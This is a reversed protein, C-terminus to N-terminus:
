GRGEESVHASEGTLAEIDAESLGLLRRGLDVLARGAALEEGIQEVEFDVPNRVATGTGQISRDDTDLVARASTEGDTEVLLIHAPWDTAHAYPESM